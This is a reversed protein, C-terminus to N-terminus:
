FVKGHLKLRMKKLSKLEVQRVRERSVKMKRGVEAYTMKKGGNKIGYRLELMERERKPLISLLADLQDMCSQFELEEEPSPDECAVLDLLSREVSTESRDRYALQDLSLPRESHEIYARM